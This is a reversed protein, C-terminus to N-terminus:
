SLAMPRHDPLEANKVQLEKQITVACQMADLVSAFEALISDGATGVIRGRHQEILADTVERCANLTRLTAEEDESMLRSFGQVDASLIAALKRVVSSGQTDHSM